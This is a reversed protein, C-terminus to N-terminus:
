FAVTEPGYAQRTLEAPQVGLGRLLEFRRAFSTSRPALSQGREACTRKVEPVEVQLADATFVFSAWWLAVVDDWERLWRKAPSEVPALPASVMTAGADLKAVSQTSRPDLPLAFAKCQPSEHLIEPPLERRLQEETIRFPVGFPPAATIALFDSASEASPADFTTPLRDGERLVVAGFGARRIAAADDEAPERTAHPGFASWEWAWGYSRSGTRRAILFRPGNM